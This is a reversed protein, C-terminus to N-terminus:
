LFLLQTDLTRQDGKLIGYSSLSKVELFTTDHRVCLYAHARLEQVYALIGCCVNCQAAHKMWLWQAAEVKVRQGDRPRVVKLELWRPPCLKNKIFLDPVGNGTSTEVHQAFAGERRLVGIVHNRFATENGFWRPPNKM